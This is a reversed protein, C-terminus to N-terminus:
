FSQMRVMYRMGLEVNDPADFEVEAFGVSGEREGIGEEEIVEKIVPLVAKCSACWSATWLTILPIKSSASLLTLSDLDAPARISGFYGKLPKLYFDDVKWYERNIYEIKLM